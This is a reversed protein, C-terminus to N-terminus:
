WTNDNQTTTYDIRTEIKKPQIALDLNHISPTITYHYRFLHQQFYITMIESKNHIPTDITQSDYEFRIEQITDQKQTSIDMYFTDIWENIELPNYYPIYVDTTPLDPNCKLYEIWRQHGQDDVLRFMNKYNIRLQIEVKYLDPPTVGVSHYYQRQAFLHYLKCYEKQINHHDKCYRHRSYKICQQNNQLCIADCQQLQPRRLKQLGQIIKTITLNYWISLRQKTTAM